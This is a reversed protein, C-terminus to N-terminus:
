CFATSPRRRYSTFICRWSWTTPRSGCYERCPGSLPEISTVLVSSVKMAYVEKRMKILGKKRTILLPSVESASVKLSALDHTSQTRLAVSTSNESPSRTSKEKVLRVVGFSGKGLVKVVEYGAVSVSKRGKLDNTSSSLVRGQRLYESEQQFWIEWARERAIRPAKTAHLMGELEDRRGARQMWGELLLNNFHTEFFIKATATSEVTTISPVHMIPVENIPTLSTGRCRNFLILAKHNDPPSLSRKRQISAPSIAAGDSTPNTSQQTVPSSGSESNYTSPASDNQVDKINTDLALSMDMSRVSPRSRLNARHVVTPHGFTSSIRHSLRHTLGPTSQSKRLGPNQKRSLRANSPSPHLEVGLVREWTPTPSVRRNADEYVTPRDRMLSNGVSLPHLVTKSTSTDNSYPRYLPADTSSRTDARTQKSNLTFLSRIRSSGRRLRARVGNKLQQRSSFSDISPQSGGTGDLHTPDLIRVKQRPSFMRLGRSSSRVRKKRSAANVFPMENPPWHDLLSPDNAAVFGPISGLSATDSVVLLFACSPCRVIHQAQSTSIAASRHQRDNFCCLSELPWALVALM